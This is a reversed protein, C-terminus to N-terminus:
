KDLQEMYFDAIDQDTDFGLTKKIGAAALEINPVSIGCAKNAQVAVEAALYASVMDKTDFEGNACKTTALYADTILEDPSLTCTNLKKNIIEQLTIKNM